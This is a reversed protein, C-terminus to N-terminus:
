RAAGGSMHGLHASPNQMVNLILENPKLTRITPFDSRRGHRDLVAEFAEHQEGYFLANKATYTDEIASFIGCKPDGHLQVSKAVQLPIPKSNETSRELNKSLCAGDLKDILGSAALMYFEAEQPVVGKDTIIGRLDAILNFGLAEKRALILPFSSFTGKDDKLSAPHFFLTTSHQQVM